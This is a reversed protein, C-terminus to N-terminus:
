ILRSWIYSLASAGSDILFIAVAGGFLDRGKGDSATDKKGNDGSRSKVVFVGGGLRGAAVGEDPESALMETFRVESRKFGNTNVNSINNAITDLAKQQADTLAQWVKAKGAKLMVTKEIRDM